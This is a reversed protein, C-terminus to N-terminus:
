AGSELVQKLRPFARTPFPSSTSEVRQRDPPKHEVIKWTYEYDKGM